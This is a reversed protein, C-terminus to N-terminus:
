QNIVHEVKREHNSYGQPKTYAECPKQKIKQTYKIAKSNFPKFHGLYSYKEEEAM